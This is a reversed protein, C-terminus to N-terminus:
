RKLRRTGRLDDHKCPLARAKAEGRPDKRLGSLCAFGLISHLEVREDRRRDTGTALRLRGGRSGHRLSRTPSPSGSLEYQQWSAAVDQVFAYAM